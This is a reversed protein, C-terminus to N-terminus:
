QLGIKLIVNNAEVMEAQVNDLGGMVYSAFVTAKGPILWFEMLGQKDSKYVATSVIGLAGNEHSVAVQQGLDMNLSKLL